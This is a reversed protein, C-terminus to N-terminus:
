KPFNNRLELRDSDKILSAMLIRKTPLKPNAKDWLEKNELVNRKCVFSFQIDINRISNFWEEYEIGDLNIDVLLGCYIDSKLNDKKEFVFRHAGYVKSSWMDQTKIGFGKGCVMLDSRHQGMGTNELIRDENGSKFYWDVYLEGIKGITNQQLRRFSNSQGRSKYLESNTKDTDTM